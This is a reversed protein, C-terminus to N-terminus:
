LRIARHSLLKIKFKKVKFFNHHYSTKAKLEHQLSIIHKRIRDLSRLLLAEVRCGKLERHQKHQDKVIQGCSKEETPQKVLHGCAITGNASVRLPVQWSACCLQTV